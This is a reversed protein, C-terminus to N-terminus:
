YYNNILIKITRFNRQFINFYHLYNYNLSFLGRKQFNHVFVNKEVPFQLLIKRCSM